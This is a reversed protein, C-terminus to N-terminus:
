RVRPLAATHGGQRSCGRILEALTEPSADSAKDRQWNSLSQEIEQRGMLRRLGAYTLRALEQPPEDSAEVRRQGEIYLTSLLQRLQPASLEHMVQQVTWERRGALRPLINAAIQAAHADSFVETSLEDLLTPGRGDESVPTDALEPHAILVCLLDLEARRRVAPVPDALEQVPLSQNALEPQDTAPAARSDDPQAGRPTQKPIVERVDNPSLGLLDAIRNVVLAQRVGPMSAFGLQSLDRGFDELTRQRASLGAANALESRFRQLKFELADTAGAIAQTFREVGDPQRLLDDPDLGDPLVCIKVDMRGAFFVEVARDAARVGAEDGDFILVVTHCLRGLLQAHERTLATGLTAVVNNLGAQHCAIVDTYGETVIAQESSLIARKALHLGYLTRSKSFAPSEPSNLYKPQDEPDIARGGFAIPRGLDDCIPFVLRNRFTDYHGNGGQRPKILGAEAMAKQSLANGRNSYQLLGDWQDPALGIQFDEVSQENINRQKLIERAGSGSPSNLVSQFFRAAERNADFLAARNERNAGGTNTHDTSRQLTIGAREALYRLAAPFDMKHYDMVFNFVDGAAGCSHCKYFANGKHTVVAFSPKHDDHFPCLGVHERGRPRLMVHEGILQVLDTADRVDDIDRGPQRSVNSGSGGQTADVDLREAPSDM